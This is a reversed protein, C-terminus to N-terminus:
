VPFFFRFGLRGWADKKVVGEPLQDWPGPGGRCYEEWYSSNTQFHTTHKSCADFNFCEDVLTDFKLCTIAESLDRRHKSMPEAM